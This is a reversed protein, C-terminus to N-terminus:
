TFDLKVYKAAANYIGLQGTMKRPRLLRPNEFEWVFAGEVFEHMAAQEDEKTMPRVNVLEVLCITVGLPYLKPYLHAMKQASSKQYAHSAGHLVEGIHAKAGAHIVLIGRYNTSWTRIELRKKGIQILSAFPQKITLAKYTGDCQLGPPIPGIM